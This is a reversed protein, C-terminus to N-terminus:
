REPENWDETEEGQAPCSFYDTLVGSQSGTWAFLGSGGFSGAEELHRHLFKMDEVNADELPADESGPLCILWTMASFVIPRDPHARAYEHLEPRARVVDLPVYGPLILPPQGEYDGTVGYPVLTFRKRNM